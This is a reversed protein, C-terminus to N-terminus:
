RIACFGFGVSQGPNAINNWFVGEATVTNGSQQYIASWMNRVTGEIAFSVVWDEPSSTNNAVNVQACYGEGWDDNITINATVDGGQPENFEDNDNANDCGQDSPFDTLGDGDNDFGDSCAYSPPITPIPTPPPPTAGREACFGFGVSQGPNVVNNWSVGEATVEDENQTYTANWMERVAGDVPFAVTWDSASQANNTVTVEACYGTGWDDNINVDTALGEGPPHTSMEVDIQFSFEEETSVYVNNNQSSQVPNINGDADLVGIKVLSSSTNVHQALYFPWQDAGTQGDQLEIKHTEFDSSQADFLRFTVTDGVALDQQARVQGLSRWVVPIGGMFEVDM